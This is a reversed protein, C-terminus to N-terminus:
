AFTLNSGVVWARTEAFVAPSMRSRWNQLVRQRQPLANIVDPTVLDAGVLSYFVNALSLTAAVQNAGAAREIRRLVTQVDRETLRYMVATTLHRAAASEGRHHQQVTRDVLKRRVAAYHVLLNDDISLVHESRYEFASWLSEFVADGAHLTALATVFAPTFPDDIDVRRCRRSLWSPVADEDDNESHLSAPKLMAKMGQSFYEQYGPISMAFPADPPRTGVHPTLAHARYMQWFWAGVDPALDRMLRRAQSRAICALGFAHALGHLATRALSQIEELPAALVRALWVDFLRAREGPTLVATDLFLGTVLDPHLTLGPRMDNLITAADRYNLRPLLGEYAIVYVHRATEARGTTVAWQVLRPLSVHRRAPPLLRGYHYVGGEAHRRLEDVVDGLMIEANAEGYTATFWNLAADSEGMFAAALYPLTDFMDEARRNVGRHVIAAGEVDGAMLLTATADRIYDGWIRRGLQGLM